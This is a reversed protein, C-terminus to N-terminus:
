KALSADVNVVPATRETSPPYVQRYTICFWDFGGAMGTTKKMCFAAKGFFERFLSEFQRPYLNLDM